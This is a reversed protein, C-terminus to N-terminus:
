YWDTVPGAYWVGKREVQKMNEPRMDDGIDEPLMRYVHIVRAVLADPHKRLLEGEALSVAEEWSDATVAFHAVAVRAARKREFSLDLEFEIWYPVPLSEPEGEDRNTPQMGLSELVSFKIDIDDMSLEEQSIELIDRHDHEFQDVLVLDRREPVGLEAVVAEVADKMELGSAVYLSGHEEVFVEVLPEYSMGGFGTRGDECFFPGYSEWAQMFRAKSVPEESAYADVDRYADNSFEEFTAFVEDPLLREFLIRAAEYLRAQNLVVRFEFQDDLRDDGTVFRSQFGEQLRASADLLEVGLPLEVDGCVRRELDSKIKVVPAALRRDFM